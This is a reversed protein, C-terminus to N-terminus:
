ALERQGGKKRYTRKAGCLQAELRDLDPGQDPLTYSRATKNRPRLDFNFDSPISPDAAFVIEQEGHPKPTIDSLSGNQDRWVAHFEATLFVNPWEWIVWGFVISGGDNKIKELVGDSCYGFLGYRDQTVRLYIPADAPIDAAFSRVEATITAPTSKEPKGAATAEKFIERSEHLLHNFARAM